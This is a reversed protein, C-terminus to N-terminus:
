QESHDIEVPLLPVLKVAPRTLVTDRCKITLVRAVGDHGPHIELIRALPWQMVPVNPDKLLVVDGVKPNPSDKTWKNRRQLTTLYEIRWRQWFHQTLRQLLQWRTLLSEKTDLFSPEPLSLLASGILFHGPSLYNAEEPASSLACLPRSNLVAEIRSFWTTLEEFTLPTDGAVKRFVAKASKVAAEWLGGFHPSFPPNFYWTVQLKTARLLIEDQTTQQCYWSGLERLRNAAGRFNTGCDSYCVEPIGRRALFRDFTAMFADTSLASVIELHVAKTAMCVFVCLYAKSLVAKRRLSERLLFPGAFDIGVHLFARTLNVRSPPLDAMKPTFNEAKAKYCKLCKFTRQRILNRISPIWFKLTILGQLLGPGPHLYAIHYYDVLLLSFHCKPLLIPHKQNTPLNSRRLRGGVRLIGKEDVFPSLRHFKSNILSKQPETQLSPNLFQSQLIKVINTTSEQIELTQLPGRRFSEHKTAAKLNHVFRRLWGVVRLVRLYSSQTAIFTTILNELTAIMLTAVNAKVEPLYHPTDLPNSAPWEAEPQCMWKPGHWWLACDILKSPPLGRSGHDSPNDESKVHRWSSQPTIDTIQAVRNCVFTKLKYPPTQLWSLVISSDTFFVPPTFSSSNLPPTFTQEVSKFLRSLLHAGCLELRPISIVKIPAVKTKATVLHCTTNQAGMSRLYLTACYGQASADAFGVLQYSHPQSPLVFRPIALHTLDQLQEVFRKWLLMQQSPVETDWGLRLKWLEQILAKAIFTVPALFGLPDYIKSITSLIARKTFTSAIDQVHYTFIDKSPNWKLGLIKVNLADDSSINIAEAHDNPTVHKLLEQRNSAWKSLHFCGKELLAILEAQLKVADEVTSAGTVIDDVYMDRSIVESAKVFMAGEDAVLQKMVRLALFPASSIGYTVTNLEYKQISHACDFRWLIHQYPRDEPHILIQRYMKVIDTVLVVQHLRFRLLINRIDQQLKAGVMLHSNLSGQPSSEASADFVVRLKMKSQDGKVVGHHPIVYYSPKPTPSMHGLELYDTMFKIYESKLSSDQNLKKELNYFRRKSLTELDNLEMEQTKMPLRVVYRGDPQRFHTAKFHEECAEDEPNVHSTCTYPEELEWFQKLQNHLDDDRSLTFLSSSIHNSNTRCRGIVIHGFVSPFLKPQDEHLMIMSGTWIDSFLDAGLLFDIPGPEFFTPDALEYQMYDSWIDAPMLFNPLFSTITDIVIAETSIIPTGLNRPKIHCKVKGKGGEFLTQGIASIRNSFPSPRLGLKSLLKKTVFSHQSGSDVVLRMPHYHGIADQIEAVVTGLLVQHHGQSFASLTPSQQNQNKGGDETVNGSRTPTAPSRFHLLSNHRKKCFKCSWKSTCRNTSHNYSLCNRCGPWSHLMKHRTDVTAETFKNCKFLAHHTGQCVFCANSQNATPSNPYMGALLSANIPKYTRPKSNTGGHASKNDVASVHTNGSALQLALCRERLFKTLDNFVPFDRGKHQLEFQERTAPDLLRIAIYFLIFDGEDPIKLLKFAAINDSVQSIFSQLSDVTARGQQPRFGILQNLYNSALMRKNNYTDILANWALEYNGEILPLSCIVASATGGVSSVLYHFKEMKSLMADNHIISTFADRFKPWHTIQGNFHPLNIRPLTKNSRTELTSAFSENPNISPRSASTRQAQIDEYTIHAEFYYRKAKEQMALDNELPFQKQPEGEFLDLLEDWVSEFRSYYKELVKFMGKFVNQQDATKLAIRGKENINQVEKFSELLKRRLNSVKRKLEGEDM